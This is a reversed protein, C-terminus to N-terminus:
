AAHKESPPRSTVRRPRTGQTGAHATFRPFFRVYTGEPTKALVTAELLAGLIAECTIRDIGFRQQAQPLTLNLVPNELFENQVRLVLAQIWRCNPTM